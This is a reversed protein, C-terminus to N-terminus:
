SLAAACHGHTESTRAVRAKDKPKSSASVAAHCAPRVVERMGINLAHAATHQM